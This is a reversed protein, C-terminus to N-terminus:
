LTMCFHFRSGSFTLFAGEKSQRLDRSSLCILSCCLGQVNFVFLAVMLSNQPERGRATTGGVLFVPHWIQAVNVNVILMCVFRVVSMSVCHAYHFLQVQVRFSSALVLHVRIFFSFSLVTQSSMCADLISLRNRSM